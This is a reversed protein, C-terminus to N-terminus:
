RSKRTQAREKRRKGTYARKNKEYEQRVGIKRAGEVPMGAVTFTERAVM